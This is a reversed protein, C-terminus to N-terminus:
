RPMPIRIVLPKSWDDVWVAGDAIVTAGSWFGHGLVINRLVVQTVVRV